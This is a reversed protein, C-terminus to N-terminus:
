GMGPQSLCVGADPHRHFLSGVKAEMTKIQENLVAIV